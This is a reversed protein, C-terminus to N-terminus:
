ILIIFYLYQVVVSMRRILYWRSGLPSKNVQETEFVMRGDGM